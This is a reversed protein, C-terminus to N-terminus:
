HVVGSVLSLNAPDLYITTRRSYVVFMILMPHLLYLSYTLRSLVMFPRWSLIINAYGAIQHNFNCCLKSSLPSFYLLLLLSALFNNIIGIMLHNASLCAPNLAAFIICGAVNISIVILLHRASLFTPPWAVGGM